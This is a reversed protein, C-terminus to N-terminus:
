AAYVVGLIMVWYALSVLSLLPHAQKSLVVRPPSGVLVTVTVSVPGAAVVTSRVAVTRIQGECNGSRMNLASREFTVPAVRVVTRVVKSVVVTDALEELLEELLEESVVVVLVVSVGVEVELLELEVVV